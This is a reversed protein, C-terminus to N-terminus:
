QLGLIKILRRKKRLLLIKQLIQRQPNPNYYITAPAKTGLGIKGVNGHPTYKHANAVPPSQLPM